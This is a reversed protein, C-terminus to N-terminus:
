RRPATDRGTAAAAGPWSTDVPRTDGDASSLTGQQRGPSRASPRM